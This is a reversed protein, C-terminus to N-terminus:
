MLRMQTKRCLSTIAGPEDIPPGHELKGLKAYRTRILRLHKRRENLPMKEANPM